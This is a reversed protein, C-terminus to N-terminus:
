AQVNSESNIEEVLKRNESEDKGKKLYVIITLLIGALCIFAFYNFPGARNLDFLVAGLVTQLSIGIIGFITQIGTIYGRHEPTSFQNVLYLSATLLGSMGIGLISLSFYTMFNEIETAFNMSVAGLLAFSLMGIMLNRKNM